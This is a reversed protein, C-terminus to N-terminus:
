SRRLVFAIINSRRKNSFFYNKNLDSVVYMILFKQKYYRLKKVIFINDEFVTMMKNRNQRVMIIQTM